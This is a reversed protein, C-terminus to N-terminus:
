SSTIAGTRNQIGKGCTFLYRCDYAYGALNIVRLHYKPITNPVSM